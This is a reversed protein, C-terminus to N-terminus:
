LAASGAPLVVKFATGKNLVSDFTITGAHAEVIQKTISLGLGFSEEGATGRRRSETFVDFIKDGMEAPIGIGQDKVVLLVNGRGTEISVDIVSGVPSFKIANSILNSIVRWMKEYNVRLVAPMLNLRFKQQKEDARVHLMDVCHQVLDALNVDEKKFDQDSSGSMHLLNNVLELSNTGSDKILRLAEKDEESRDNDMLMLDAMSSMAGIPNRLDHAVIKMLRANELQSNELASLAQQMQGNLATLNKVNTRSRHYYHWTVFAICLAMALFISLGVVYSNQLESSKQLLSLKYKQDQERLVQDMDVDKLGRQLQTLSDSFAHYRKSFHYANAIDGSKDFYLWKLEYWKEWVNGHERSKGRGTSLDSGLKDLLLKAQALMNNEIYLRALKIKATQSDEIGFGPRDNLEINTLLHKEADEFRNMKAFVGGLNGEIVALATTMFRQKQPHKNQSSKVFDRAHHYYTVASDLSGSKEFCLAITNLVSQRQIFSYQFAPNTCATIEALAQKLYPIAQVYQQQRYRIVGLANSFDSMSCNDLNEKAFSRGDYYFQFAENYKKEDQLLTAMAFLAHSYEYSYRTEVNQLTALMSDVYMRRKTLDQKYYTYYNTKVNYKKWLDGIGPEPLTQYASDIYRLSAAANKGDMINMARDSVSDAWTIHDPHHDSSTKCAITISLFSLFLLASIRTM